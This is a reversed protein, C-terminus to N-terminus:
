GEMVSGARGPTGAVRTHAGSKGLELKRWISELNSAISRLSVGFLNAIQEITYGSALFKLIDLERRTLEM